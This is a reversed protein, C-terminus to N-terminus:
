MTYICIISIRIKKLSVCDIMTRTNCSTTGTCHNFKCSHITIKILFHWIHTGLFIFMVLIYGCHEPFTELNVILVNPTCRCFTRTINKQSGTLMKQISMSVNEYESPRPTFWFEALSSLYEKVWGSIMVDYVLGIYQVSISCPPYCLIACAYKNFNIQLRPFSLSLKM